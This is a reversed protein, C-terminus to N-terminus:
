ASAGLGMLYLSVERALLSATWLEPAFSAQVEWQAVILSYIVGETVLGSAASVEGPERPGEELTM